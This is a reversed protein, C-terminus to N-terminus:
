LFGGLEYYSDKGIHKCYKEALFKLDKGSELTIWDDVSSRWCYRQAKYTKGTKVFKMVDEYRRYFHLGAILERYGLYQEDNKNMQSVFIIIEDAGKEIIYDSVTEHQKMVSDVIEVEADTTNYRPIRRFYVMAERPNEYFEYGEPIYDLLEDPNMKSINKVACYQLKGSKTPATKLYVKENRRNTYVVPMNSSKDEM